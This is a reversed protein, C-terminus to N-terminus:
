YRVNMGASSQLFDVPLTNRLITYKQQVDGIVREVHISVNAINRTDHEETATLRAKGTTFAPIHLVGGSLAGMESIDLGRDVLVADGPLLNRCFSTKETLLKDSM